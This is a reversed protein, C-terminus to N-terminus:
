DSELYTILECITITSTDRFLYLKLKKEQLKLPSVKEQETNSKVIKIKSIKDRM